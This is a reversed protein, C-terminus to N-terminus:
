LGRSAPHRPVARDVRPPLAFAGPAAADDSLRHWGPATRRRVADSV